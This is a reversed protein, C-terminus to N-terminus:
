EFADFVSHLKKSDLQKTAHRIEDTVLWSSILFCVDKASLGIMMWDVSSLSLLAPERSSFIWDQFLLWTLFVAICLLLLVTCDLATLIFSIFSKSRKWLTVNLTMATLQIPLIKISSRELNFFPICTTRLIKHLEIQQLRTRELHQREETYCRLWVMQFRLCTSSTQM